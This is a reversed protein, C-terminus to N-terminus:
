SIRNRAKFKDAVYSLIARHKLKRKKYM